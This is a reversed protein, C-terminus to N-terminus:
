LKLETGKEKMKTKIDNLYDPMITQIMAPMQAALKPMKALIGSGEPSSYFRDMAVLEDTTFTDLAVLMSMQILLDLRDTMAQQVVQGVDTLQQQSLGPNQQSVLGLMSKTVNNLMAVMGTKIAPTEYYHRAAAVAKPDHTALQKELAASNKPLTEAPALSGYGAVISCALVLAVFFGKRM